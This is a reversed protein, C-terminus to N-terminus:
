KEQEMRVNDLFLTLDKEPGVVQVPVANFLCQYHREIADATKVAITNQGPHLVFPVGSVRVRVDGPTPNVADVKIWRYHPGFASATPLRNGLYSSCSKG